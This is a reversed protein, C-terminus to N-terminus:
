SRSTLLRVLNQILNLCIERTGGSKEVQIATELLQDVLRTRNSTYGKVHTSPAAEPRPALVVPIVPNKRKPKHSHFLKKTTFYENQCGNKGVVRIRRKYRLANLLASVRNINIGTAEAIATSTFRLGDEGGIQKEIWDNVIATCGPNVLERNKWRAPRSPTVIPAQVGAHRPNLYMHIPRGWLEHPVVRYTIKKDSKLKSLAASVVNVAKVGIADAINRATFEPADTSALFQNVRVNRLCIRPANTNRM